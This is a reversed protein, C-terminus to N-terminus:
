FEEKNISKLTVAYEDSEIFNLSVLSKLNEITKEGDHYDYTIEASFTYENLNDTNNIELNKISKIICNDFLTDTSLSKMFQENTIVSINNTNGSILSSFYICASNFISYMKDSSINKIIDRDDTFYSVNYNDIRSSFSVNDCILIGNEYKYGYSCTDDTLTVIENKEDYEFSTWVKDSIINGCTDLLAFGNKEKFDASLFNKGILNIKKFVFPTIHNEDSDIIGISLEDGSKQEVAFRGGSLFYINNWQPKIIQRENVDKVGYLGEDSRFIVYNSKVTDFDAIINGDPIASGTEKNVYFYFRILVTIMVIIAFILVTTFLKVYWKTKLYKNSIKIKNIRKM